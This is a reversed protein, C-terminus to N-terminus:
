KKKNVMEKHLGYWLTAAKKYEPRGPNEKLIMKRLKSKCHVFITKDNISPWDCDVANFEITKFKHLNIKDRYTETMYGFAAQNMGAYKSRWLQHFRSDHLMKINIKLMEKFFNVSKHNVKVFMIGGNNPIRKIRTRETYAIDFDFKFAHEASRIAIMDCDALIVNDDKTSELFQVWKELKITNYNFNLARGTKNEPAEICISNFKVKPMYKQCSYRFVDLLIKYNSRDPYNFQVTIIQM